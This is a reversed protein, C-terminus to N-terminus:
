GETLLSQYEEGNVIQLTMLRVMVGFIVLLVLIILVAHRWKVTNENRESEM